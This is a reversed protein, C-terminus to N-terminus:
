TVIKNLIQRISQYTNKMVVNLLNPPFWVATTINEDFQPKLTEKGDYLMSYWVTHKLINKGDLRYTHYTHAIEGTIKPMKELGCEEVVERLATERLSERKEAKGKPLDWKGLRKIFLLRGDPLSVLGGAAEIYKFCDKVHGFLEKLDNHIVYLIDDNSKEFCDLRNALSKRNEFVYILDNDIVRNKDIKETLVVARDDFFIKIEINM